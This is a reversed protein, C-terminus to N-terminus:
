GDQKPMKASDFFLEIKEMRGNPAYVYEAMPVVGAPTHCDYITCVHDGDVFEHHVEGMKIADGMQGLAAVFAEANDFRMMPGIFTFSPAFLEKGMPQGKTWCQYYEHVAEIATKAM